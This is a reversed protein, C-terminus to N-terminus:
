AETRFRKIILHELNSAAFSITRSIGKVFLHCRESV